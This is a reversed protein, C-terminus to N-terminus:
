RVSGNFKTMANKISRAVLDTIGLTSRVFFHGGSLLTYSFPRNTYGSWEKLVNIPVESDDIGAAAVIPCELRDGPVFRYSEVMRFDARIIPLLLDMAEPNDLLDDPTGKMSRLEAILNDQPLSWVVPGAERLHPPRSGAVILLNAKMRYNRELKREVEFAILAGMSHGFLVFPKGDLVAMMALAADEAVCEIQDYPGEQLRRGRGPLEVACLQVHSPLHTKWNRFLLSNGGAHHFCFLKVEHEANSTACEFWPRM